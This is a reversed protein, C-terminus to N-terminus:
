KRILPLYLDYTGVTLTVPISVNPAVTSNSAYCLTGTYVGNTLGTSNFVVSVASSSDAAVTGSVPVTSVWPLANPTCTPGTLDLSVDDLNFNGSGVTTSDFRVVHSGGTAFQSIDVSVLTYSAYSGIQAGTATFVPTGDISAKIWDSAGGASTGIWLYFNLTAVGPTLIVTQQLYGVDGAAAGGFWGWFNGTHAGATGGGTGCGAVDCIVTVYTASNQGWYPNAYTTGNTAEFGGDQIINVLPAASEFLPVTTFSRPLRDTNQSGEVVLRTPALEQINWTLAAAGTNNITLTKTTVRNTPQTSSLSHGSLSQCPALLRLNFNTTTTQSQTVNVVTSQTAYGAKSVTLTYASGGLLYYNYQGSANTTVTAVTGGTIAVNAGNLPAGPADCVALGNVVGNVQGYTPPASVTMTVPIRVEGQPSNSAFVLDTNYVGPLAVQSADFMVNIMQSTPPTGTLGVTSTISESLWPVDVAGCSANGPRTFCIAQGNTLKAQNYSYEVSNTAGVGRIGVTASAGNNLTADGFDVDQYQYLINGNEYLVVEFTASGIGNYHPRNYWEVVLKRNPATGTVMWYVNGTEDDIDDWFPAIFNDPASAMAANTVVVDGTTAGFLVAGNNGVRLNTSSGAYYPFAFPSAINAEADDTLGLATGGTADVWNYTATIWTYGYADLPANLLASPPAEYLNFNLPTAGTSTVYLTQTLAAGFQLTAQLSKPDVKICPKQLRLTFNQTTTLGGSVAVGGVTTVLHDPATVTVTFPSQTADVYYNYVGAGNTVLTQTFGTSGQLYIQAGGIPAPNVDCTGTTSVVGTLLGQTGAPLVTMVIPLTTNQANPDNNDIRLTGTYTGPQAVQAM